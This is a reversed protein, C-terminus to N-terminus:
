DTIRRFTFKKKDQVIFAELCNTPHTFQYELSMDFSNESIKFVGEFDKKEAYTYRSIKYTTTNIKEEITFWAGSGCGALWTGKKSYFLSKKQIEDEIISPLTNYKNFFCDKYEKLISRNNYPAVETNYIQYINNVTRGKLVNGIPSPTCLYSITLKTKIKKQLTSTRLTDTVFRACNSGNRIFAGYPIEKQKVCGNIFTLAKEYDIEENVSAVMRGEGHTKEPHGELWVLIEDLNSLSAKDFKALIPIHLEFDTEKSRVRGNKYTTIYRGFDFYNIEPVGKKILLLAAHGAQIGIKNGIGLYPLFKSLVDRKSPKVVTDPYALIIIIGNSKSM